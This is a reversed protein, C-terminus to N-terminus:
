IHFGSVYIMVSASDPVSSLTHMFPQVRNSLCWLRRTVVQRVCVRKRAAAEFDWRPKMQMRVGSAVAVTAERLNVPGVSGSLAWSCPIVYTEKAASYRLCRPLRGGEERDTAGNM